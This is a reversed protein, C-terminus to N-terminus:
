LCTRNEEFSCRVPAQGRHGGQLVAGGALHQVRQQDEEEPHGGSVGDAPQQAPHLPLRQLLATARRRAGGPSPPFTPPSQSLTKFPSVGRHQQIAWVSPLHWHPM